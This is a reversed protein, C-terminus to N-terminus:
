PCTRPRAKPRRETRGFAFLADLEQSSLAKRAKALLLEVDVL